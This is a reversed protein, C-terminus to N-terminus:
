SRPPDLVVKTGALYDHVCKQNKIFIFAHDILIYPPILTLLWNVFYRLVINTFVRGNVGTEEHVIRIRLLRKGVTQGESRLLRVQIPVGVIGIVLLPLTAIALGENDALLMAVVFAAPSFPLDILWAALRRWRDALYLPDMPVYVSGGLATACRRCFQAVVPNTTTCNPCNVQATQQAM